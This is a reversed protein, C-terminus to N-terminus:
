ISLIQIKNNQCKIIEELSGFELSTIKARCMICKSGCKTIMDSVCDSCVNHGCNTKTKKSHIIDDYCIPCTIDQCESKELVNNIISISKWTKLINDVIQKEHENQQTIISEDEARRIVNEVRHQREIEQIHLREREVRHQREIEEIRLREREIRYRREIEQIHLREIEIRRQREIEQIHLRETEIRRMENEIRQRQIINQTRIAEPRRVLTFSVHDPLLLRQITETATSISSGMALKTQINQAFKLKSQYVSQKLMGILPPTFIRTDKININWFLTREEHVNRIVDDKILGNADSFVKDFMALNGFSFWKTRIGFEIACVIVAVNITIDIKYGFKSSIKKINKLTFSEIINSLSCIDKIERNRCLRMLKECVMDLNFGCPCRSTSSQPNECSFCTSFDPVYVPVSM